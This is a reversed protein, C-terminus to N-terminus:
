YQVGVGVRFLWYPDAGGTAKGGTGTTAELYRVEIGVPSAFAYFTDLYLNAQLSAGAGLLFTVNSGGTQDNTFFLSADLLSLIPEIEVGFHRSHVLPIAWGFGFPNLSIGSIGNVNSYALVGHYRMLWGTRSSLELGINQYTTGAGWSSTGPGNLAPLSSNALLIEPAYVLSFRDWGPYAAAEDDRDPYAAAM